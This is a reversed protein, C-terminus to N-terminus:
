PDRSHEGDGSDPHTRPRHRAGVGRGEFGVPPARSLRRGDVRPSGATRWPSPTSHQGHARDPRAHRGRQVVGKEILLSTVAMQMVQHYALPTDDLDPQAPHRHTPDVTTARRTRARTWPVHGGSRRRARTRENRVGGPRLRSGTSSSRSRWATARTAVTTGAVAFPERLRGPVAGRHAADGDGYALQEPNRFRGCIREVEGTKGRCYWPTRVHGPRSANTCGSGCRGPAFRPAPGNMPARIPPRFRDRGHARGARRGRHNEEGDPPNTM